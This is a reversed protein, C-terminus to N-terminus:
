FVMRKYRLRADGFNLLLGVKVGTAKLYNLLQAEHEAHNGAAAKIEIVVCGAAVIDAVFDGAAISKYRVQLRVQRQFAIGRQSLEHALATEYVSELFGPGLVNHVEFAAGLILATVDAHPFDREEGM